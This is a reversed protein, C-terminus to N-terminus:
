LRKEVVYKASAAQDAKRGAMPVPSSRRGRGRWAALLGLLVMGLGAGALLSPLSFSSRLWYSFGGPSVEFTQRTLPIIQDQADKLVVELDVTEVRQPSGQLAWVWEGKGRPPVAQLAEGQLLVPSLEPSSSKWEPSIKFSDGLAKFLAREEDSFQVTDPSDATFRLLYSGGAQDPVQITLLGLRQRHLFVEHTHFSGEPTQEIRSKVQLASRLAEATELIEKQRRTELFRAELSNRNSTLARLDAQLKRGQEQSAKLDESLKQNEKQLQALQRSVQELRSSLNERDSRLTNISGSLSEVRKDLQLNETSKVDLSRALANISRELDSIQREYRQNSQRAKELDRQLNDREQSLRGREARLEQLSSTSQAMERRLKQLESQLEQRESGVDQLEQQLSQVRQRAQAAEERAARYEPNKESVAKIVYEVSTGTTSAFQQILQDFQDQIYQEKAADIDRYTLGETFSDRLAADFSARELFDDSLRGPFQFIVRGTRVLDISAIRFEISDNKFDLRTVRVQEGVRFTLPLNLNGRDLAVGGERVYVIQEEGRVPVKLFLAKNEYQQVYQARIESRVGAPLTSAGTVLVLITVLGRNFARM